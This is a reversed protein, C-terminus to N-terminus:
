TFHFFKLFCSVLAVYWIVKGHVARTHLGLGQWSTDVHDCDPDPCNYRLLLLTEEMMEETEFVIALKSDKLPM